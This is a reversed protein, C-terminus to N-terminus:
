CCRFGEAANSRDPTRLITFGYNGQGEGQGFYCKKWKGRFAWFKSKVCRKAKPEAEKLILKYGKLKLKEKFKRKEDM